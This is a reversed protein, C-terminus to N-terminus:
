SAAEDLESRWRGLARDYHLPGVSFRTLDLVTLQEYAEQPLGPELVIKLGSHEDQLVLPRPATDEGTAGPRVLRGVLDKLVRYGDKVAEGGLGSLFAQLPLAALVLWQLEASGRHALVRRVRVVPLGLDQFRETLERQLGESVAQSVLLEARLPAETM